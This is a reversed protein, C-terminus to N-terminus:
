STSRRGMQLLAWVTIIILVLIGCLVMVTRSNTLIEKPFAQIPACENRRQYDEPCRSNTYIDYEFLNPTVALAYLQGEFIANTMSKELTKKKLKKGNPLNKKGIVRDRGRPSYLIADLGKPSHTRVISSQGCDSVSTHMQCKDHYKFLYALDFTDMELCNEIISTVFKSGHTCIVSDTIVITYATRNTKWSDELADYIGKELTRDGLKVFSLTFISSSFAKRLGAVQSVYQGGQQIVYVKINEKM